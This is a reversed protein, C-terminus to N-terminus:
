LDGGHSIDLHAEIDNAIVPLPDRLWSAPIVVRPPVGAGASDIMLCEECCRRRVAVTLITDRSFSAEVDGGFARHFRVVIDRTARFLFVGQMHCGARLEQSYKRFRVAHWALFFGLLSFFISLGISRLIRGGLVITIMLGPTAAFVGGAYWLQNKSAFYRAPYCTTGDPLLSVARDSLEEHFLDLDLHRM